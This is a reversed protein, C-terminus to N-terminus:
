QPFSAAVVDAATRVWEGPPDSPRLVEGGASVVLVPLDTDPVALVGVVVGPVAPLETGVVRGPSGDLEVSFLRNGRATSRTLVVIGTASEQALDVVVALGADPVAVRRAPLARALRGSETRVLDSVLLTPTVVSGLGAVFSAGDRTLTFSAVKRGSVGAIEVVRDRGNTAIVHVVAGARTADVLWLNGFRDFSPRLLNSAGDLVTRVRGPARDGTTPAQYARRGNRAVVAVEDTRLSQAVSRLAFGEDGLPGGIPRPGDDGETVVRGGSIAVYERQPVGVPDLEPALDLGVDTQGDVLPVAVGDVTVRFRVLGPIQRLTASLQAAARYLEARSLRQIGSSLPVEAVGDDGIVVSLDLDVGSGFASRTAGGQAPTPGVLLGRVLSSAVQEGRPLYVRTPVLVTGTRDFFYLLYPLYTNRFYSTPVPLSTPPNQIRWEGQEQVLDLRLDVTPSREAADWAGRRDIRNAGALRAVVQDAGAELSSTTYVIAGAPKWTSRASETLFSRAVSTSPPNAQTALLFGRVVSERDAGAKPGPPVFYPAQDAGSGAAGPETRVEGSTPLTTCGALVVAAALLLAPLAHSRRRNM